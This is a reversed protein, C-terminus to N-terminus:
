VTREPAVPAAGLNETFWDLILRAREVRHRPAGSRSLEHSEGPFRVFVPERGLLRLAVFLEEAQSVPCRLDDESHLILVPTTMRSVYTIPSQRLYAAPDELHTRGVVGRFTGAIDSNAELTLLNNCSRESCAAKFRDTHGIAWSTMYGGYSGGMIGLREPDVWDFRRCGEEVCAMVDDFDVGGWGSGPDNESEPWRVARGWAEDYGSSGRPNCYLVGFGAGAEIQFEDFFRHGYSTFPGGHVNLLTPYRRGAEVGIPPMAWCPVETGDASRAVFGQPESLRTRALLPSTLDTVRTEPLDGRDSPQGQQELDDGSRWPLPQVLLEPLTTPTSVAMALTGGAWDWTSVWREGDVVAFPKGHGSTAVAYIHVSGSDEVSFLLHDGFWVPARGYGYPFCNRDLDNTLDTATGNSLDLVGVQEHRPEDLPGPNRVYALRTGDPSWSPSSFMARSDTLREPENSGDAAITWLDVAGDLDWTEHRASSFAIQSSDPSWTVGTAEYPGTTLARPSASGDAPVTIVQNPRDVVWGESDLRYFLHTLRRPPMDEVKRKEGGAGYRDPDAVRAVFALYASNPSWALETVPAPWTAVVVREGGHAVPLVAIESPGEAPTSAFALWKGDPSWVPLQDDPGASFPRPPLQGDTSALWVRSRYRNAELDVDTVTFAVSAGDPSVRTDHVHRLAGIDEPRMGRRLTQTESV